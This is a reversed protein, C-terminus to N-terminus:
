LTEIKINGTEQTGVLYNFGLICLFLIVNFKYMNKSNAVVISCRIIEFVTDFYRSLCTGSIQRNGVSTIRKNVWQFWQSFCVQLHYNEIILNLFCFKGNGAYWRAMHVYVLHWVCWTYKNACNQSYTIMKWAPTPVLIYSWFKFFM